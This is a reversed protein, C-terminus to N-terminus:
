ESDKLIEYSPVAFKEKKELVLKLSLACSVRQAAVMESFVVLATIMQYVHKFLDSPKAKQKQLTIVDELLNISPFSLALSKIWEICPDGFPEIKLKTKHFTLLSFLDKM